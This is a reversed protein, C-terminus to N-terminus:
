WSCVAAGDMGGEGDWEYWGVRNNVFEAGDIDASSDYITYVAAGYEGAENDDFTTGKSVKLSSGYVLYIGGGYDQALNNSVKSSGSLFVESNSTAFIAGGYAYNGDATCEKFTTDKASLTSQSMWVCGGDEGGGTAGKKITIGDLSVDANNLFM